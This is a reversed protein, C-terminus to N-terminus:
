IGVWCEAGNDLQQDYLNSACSVATLSRSSAALDPLVRPRPEGVEPPKEKPPPPLRIAFGSLPPPSTTAVGVM